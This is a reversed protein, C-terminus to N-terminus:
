LLNGSSRTPQPNNPKASTSRPVRQWPAAKARAARAAKESLERQRRRHRVVGYIGLGIGLAIILSEVVITIIYATM